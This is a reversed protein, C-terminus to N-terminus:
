RRPAGVNIPAPLPSPSANSRPSTTASTAPRMAAERADYTARLEVRGYPFPTPSPVGVPEPTSADATSRPYGLGLAHGLVYEVLDRDRIESETIYVEYTAAVRKGQGDKLVEVPVSRRDLPSRVLYSQRLVEPIVILHLLYPSAKDVLMTTIPQQIASLDGRRGKRIAQTLQSDRPCNLTVEAATTPLAVHAWQKRTQQQSLINAVLDRAARHDFSADMAPDVCVRLRDRAQDILGPAWDASLARDLIAVFTWTLAGAIASIGILLSKRGTPLLFIM